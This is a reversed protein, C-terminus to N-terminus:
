QKQLGFCTFKPPILFLSLQSAKWAWEVTRDIRKWM